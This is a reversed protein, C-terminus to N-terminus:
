SRDIEISIRNLNTVQRVTEDACGGCDVLCRYRFSRTKKTRRVQRRLLFPQGKVGLERDIAIRKRNEIAVHRDDVAFVPGLPDCPLEGIDDGDGICQRPIEYDIVTRLTSRGSRIMQVKLGARRLVDGDDTLNFPSDSLCNRIVTPAYDYKPFGITGPQNSC